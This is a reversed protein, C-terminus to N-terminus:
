LFLMALSLIPYLVGLVASTIFGFLAGKGASKAKKPTKDKELVYLILGVVPIFFGLVAYGLSPADVEGPAAPMQGCPSGCASCFSADDTLEKGCRTCYKM